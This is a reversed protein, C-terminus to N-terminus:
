HVTVSGAMGQAAHDGVDCQYSYTGPAVTMSFTATSGAGIVPGIGGTVGSGSFDINHDLMGSNVETINVTGCPLSSPMGQFAYDIMTVTVATTAPSACKGGAAVPAGPTTTPTTTTKPPTTDAKTLTVGIGVLGKMGNKAHGSLTCLFEFKGKKLTVTLSATKGPALVKTAVGVCSNATAATVAKTCVKFSHGIVGKNTVKFTVKGATIMSTKSLKFAFETPKGATVTVIVPKAVSQKTSQATAPLAWVTLGVASVALLAVFARRQGRSSQNKMGLIERM